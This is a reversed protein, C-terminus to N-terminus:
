RGQNNEIMNILKKIEIEAIKVGTKYVSAFNSSGELALKKFGSMVKGYDLLTAIDPAKASSLILSLTEVSDSDTM